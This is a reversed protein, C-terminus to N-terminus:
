KYGWNALSHALVRNLDALETANFYEAYSVPKKLYQLNQDDSVRYKLDFHQYVAKLTEFPAALFDEYRLFHYDQPELRHIQGEMENMLAEWQLGCSIHPPLSQLEEWNAPKLSWWRHRDGEIEERAVLLSKAVDRGDRVICLFRAEPFIAKLYHIKNANHTSKNLILRSGMLISLKNFIGRLFQYVSPTLTQRHPYDTHSFVNRWRHHDTPHRSDLYWPWLRHGEDLAMFGKVQGYSHPQQLDLNQGLLKLGIWNVLYVASPFLNALRTIYAYEEALYYTFWRYIVTTGSRPPGIIFIPEVEVTRQELFPEILNREFLGLFKDLLFRQNLSLM